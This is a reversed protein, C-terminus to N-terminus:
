EPFEVLLEELRANRQTYYELVCSRRSETRKQCANRNKIWGRQEALLEARGPTKAKKMADGFLAAMKRDLASLKPDRCILKEIENGAQRCDFSPAASHVAPLPLAICGALLLVHCPRKSM